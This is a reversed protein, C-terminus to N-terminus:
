CHKQKVFLLCKLLIKSPDDEIKGNGPPQIQRLRDKTRSTVPLQQIKCADFWYPYLMRQRYNEMERNCRIGQQNSLCDHLIARSDIKECKEEKINNSDCWGQKFLTPHLQVINEKIENFLQKSNLEKIDTCKTKAPSDTSNEGNEKCVNSAKEDSLFCSCQQYMNALSNALIKRNTISEADNEVDVAPVPTSTLETDKCKKTNLGNKYKSVINLKFEHATQNLGNERLTQNETQEKLQRLLRHRPHLTVKSSSMNQYTNCRSSSDGSNLELISRGLWKKKPHLSKPFTFVSARERLFSDLKRVVTFSSTTINEYMKKPSFCEEQPEQAEVIQAIRRQSILECKKQNSEGPQPRKNTTNKSMINSKLSNPIMKHHQKTGIHINKSLTKDNKIQETNSTIPSAIQDKTKRNQFLESRLTQLTLSSGSLDDIIEQDNGSVNLWVKKINKNVSQEIKKYLCEVIMTSQHSKTTESNAEFRWLVAQVHNKLRVYPIILNEHLTPFTKDDLCRIDTLQWKANNISITFSEVKSMKYKPNLIFIKGPKDLSLIISTDIKQNSGPCDIIVKGIYARMICLQAITAM